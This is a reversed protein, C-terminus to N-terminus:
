ICIYSSLRSSCPRRIRTKCYRRPVLDSSPVCVVKGNRKVKSNPAFLAKLAEISKEAKAEQVLGMIANFVVIAIIILSDAYDHSGELFSTLASIIASLILIIIMFDNFQKLFRIVLGEKKSEKLKNEGFKDKLARVQKDTLGLGINSKLGNVTDQASKAYWM